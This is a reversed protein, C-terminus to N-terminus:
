CDSLEGFLDAVFSFYLGSLAFFALLAGLTPQLGEDTWTDLM